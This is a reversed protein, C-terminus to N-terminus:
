DREDEDLSYSWTLYSCLGDLDPFMSARNIGCRDLAYRLMAFDRPVIEIRALRNDFAPHEQLPLWECNETQRHVSFYGRQVRIRGTVMYPMFFLTRGLDFPSTRNPDIVLDKDTYNLMYVVANRDAAKAPREIAFWLAVLPSLSWDLLRTAMGHHQAISLLDSIMNQEDQLTDHRVMLRALKPLMPWDEQQGRFLWNDEGCYEEIIGVFQSLTNAFFTKM